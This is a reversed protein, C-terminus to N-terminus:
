YKKDLYANDKVCGMLSSIEFYITKKGILDRVIKEVSKKKM